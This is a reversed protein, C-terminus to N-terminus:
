NFLYLLCLNKEAMKGPQSVGNTSNKGYETDEHFQNNESITERELKEPGRDPQSNKPIEFNGETLCDDDVLSEQSSFAGSQNRLLDILDNGQIEESHKNVDITFDVDLELGDNDDSESLTNDDGTTAEHNSLLGILGNSQSDKNDKHLNIPLDADIGLETNRPSEDDSLANDDDSTAEHNTLLAILDNSKITGSDKNLDIAFDADLGLERKSLSDNYRKNEMKMHGGHDQDRIIDLSSEPKEDSKDVGVNIGLDDLNIEDNDVDLGISGESVRGEDENIGGNDGDIRIGDNDVKVGENFGNSGGNNGNEIAKVNVELNADTIQQTKDLSFEDYDSHNSGNHDSIMLDDILQNMLDIDDSNDLMTPPNCSLGLPPLDPVNEQDQEQSKEIDIELTRDQLIEILEEEIKKRSEDDSDVNSFVIESLDNLDREANVSDNAAKKPSNKITEVNKDVFKMQKPGAHNQNLAEFYSFKEHFSMMEQQSGEIEPPNPDSLKHQHDKEDQPLKSRDNEASRQKNEPPPIEHEPFRTEHQPAPNDHESKTMDHKFIPPNTPLPPLEQQSKNTDNSLRQIGHQLQQMEHQLQKMVHPQSIEGVDDGNNLTGNANDVLQVGEQSGQVNFNEGVISIGDSKQWENIRREEEMLKEQEIKLQENQQRFKEELKAQERRLSNKLEDQSLLDSSSQSCLLMLEEEEADDFEDSSGQESDLENGHEELIVRDDLPIATKESQTKTFDSSGLSESVDHKVDSTVGLSSENDLVVKEENVGPIGVPEDDDLLTEKEGKLPCVKDSDSNEAVSIEEKVYKQFAGEGDALQGNGTGLRLSRNFSPTISCNPVDSRLSLSRNLGSDSKGLNAFNRRARCLQIQAHFYTEEIEKRKSMDDIVHMLRARQENKVQTWHNVAERAEKLLEERSKSKNDRSYGKFDHSNTKPDCSSKEHNHLRKKCDYTIEVAEPSEKVFGESSVDLFSESDRTYSKVDSSRPEFPLGNSLTSVNNSTLLPDSPIQTSIYTNAQNYYTEFDPINNNQSLTNGLNCLRKLSNCGDLLDVHFPLNRTGRQKTEEPKLVGKLDFCSTNCPDLSGFGDSHSSEVMNKMNRVDGRKNSSSTFVTSGFEDNRLEVHNKRDNRKVFANTSFGPSVLGDLNKVKAHRNLSSLNVSRSGENGLKANENHEDKGVSEYKERATNSDVVESDNRSDFSGGLSSGFGTESLKGEGNQRGKNGKEFRRDSPSSLDTKKQCEFTEDFSLNVDGRKPSSKSKSLERLEEELILQEYLLEQDKLRRQIDALRSDNGTRLRATRSGSLTNDDNSITTSSMVDDNWRKNSVDSSITSRLPSQNEERYVHHTHSLDEGYQSASSEHDSSYFMKIYFTSNPLHGNLSTVGALTNDNWKCIQM